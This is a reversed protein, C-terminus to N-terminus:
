LFLSGTFNTWGIPVNMGDSYAIQKITPNAVTGLSSIVNQSNTTSM